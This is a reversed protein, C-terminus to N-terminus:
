TDAKEDADDLFPAAWAPIDGQATFISGATRGLDSLRALYGDGRRARGVLGAANLEDLLRGRYTDENLGVYNGSKRSSLEDEALDAVAQRAEPSLGELTERVQEVADGEPFRQLTKVEPAVARAASRRFAGSQTRARPAPTPTPAPQPRTPGFERRVNEMMRRELEQPDFKGGEEATKSAAEMFARLLERFQEGVMAHTATATSRVDALLAQTESNLQESRIMQQAAANGQAIYVVIQIAFALIALALAVTSLGDADEISAVVALTALCALAVIASAVGVARAPLKFVGADAPGSPEVVALDAGEPSPEDPPADDAPGDM